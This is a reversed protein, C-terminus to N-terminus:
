DKKERLDKVVREMADLAKTSLKKDGNKIAAELDDMREKFTQVAQKAKESGLASAVMDKVSNFAAKATNFLTLLTSGENKDVQTRLGHVADEIKQLMLDKDM